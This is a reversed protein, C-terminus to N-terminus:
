FFTPFNPDAHRLHVEIPQDLHIAEHPRIDDYVTRCDEAREVLTLANDIEDLM